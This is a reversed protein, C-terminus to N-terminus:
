VETLSGAFMPVVDDAKGVTWARVALVPEDGKGLGQSAPATQQAAYIRLLALMVAALGGGTGPTIMVVLPDTVGFDPDILTEQDGLHAVHQRARLVKPGRATWASRFLPRPDDGVYVSQVGASTDVRVTQGTALTVLRSILTGAFQSHIQAGDRDIVLSHALSGDPRTLTEISAWAALGTADVQQDHSLPQLADPVAPDGYYPEAWCRCNPASGPHGGAPPEAWAFVQGHRRAHSDRVRDDGASRWVYFRTAKAPVVPVPEVAKREALDSPVEPRRGFRLYTDFARRRALGILQQNDDSHGLQRGM